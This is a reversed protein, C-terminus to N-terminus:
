SANVTSEVRDRLDELATHVIKSEARRKVFGPIPVILEADLVYIIETQDEGYAKFRYSGDLKSAIDGEILRWTVIEPAESYDYELTYSTSRGFAGARFTVQTGRGQEDTAAIVVEKIDSAWTPYHAFNTAVNFCDEPRARVIITEKASEVM